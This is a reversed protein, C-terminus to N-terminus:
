FFRYNVGARVLNDTIHANRAAMASGATFAPGFAANIPIPFAESVTGLDVYFYEIKASWRDDLKTEVGPVECWQAGAGPDLISIRRRV